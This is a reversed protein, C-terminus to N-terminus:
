IIGTHTKTVTVVDIPNVSYLAGSVFNDKYTFTAGSIYHASVGSVGPLSNVKKQISDVNNIYFNDKKPEIFINAYTYDILMVNMGEGIGSVISPLFVLNVFIMSMIAVTLITTGINGRRLSKYALFFSIKFNKLMTM